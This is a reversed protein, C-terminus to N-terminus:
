KTRKKLGDQDVDVDAATSKATETVKDAAEKAADKAKEVEKEVVKKGKQASEKLPSGKPTLLALLAGILALVTVFAAALGGAVEKKTQLAELPDELFVPIFDQVEKQVFMLPDDWFTLADSDMAEDTLPKEADEAATEIDYKVKWTEDAFKKADEVSHGIYINDFLIDKQM